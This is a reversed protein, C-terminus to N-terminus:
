QTRGGAAEEERRKAAADKELQAELKKMSQNAPAGGMAEEIRYYGKWPM